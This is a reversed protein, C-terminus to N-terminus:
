AGCRPAAPQTQAAHGAFSNVSDAKVSHCLFQFAAKAVHPVQANGIATYREEWDGAGSSGLDTWGPPLGMLWELVEPNPRDPGFAKIFNSCGLHRQMCPATFNAAGTPTHVRFNRGFVRQLYNQGRNKRKPDGDVYGAPPTQWFDSKEVRGNVEPVAELSTYALLWYRRRVHPAGVDSARMCMISSYYGLRSCDRAARVLATEAVNEAFVMQPSIEGILRLMEPWLDKAVSVGHTATSFAQCPFGGTIIEVRNKWRNSNFTTIDDWIPFADLRRSRQQCKLVTRCFPSIEVAVIPRAFDRLGLLGGGIGAFLSLERLRV